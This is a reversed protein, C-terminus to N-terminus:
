LAQESPLDNEWVLEERKFTPVATPGEVVYVTLRICRGQFHKTRPERNGTDASLKRFERPVFVPNNDLENNDIAPWVPKIAAVVRDSYAQGAKGWLMKNYPIDIFKMFELIRSDTRTQLLYETGVGSSHARRNWSFLRHWLWIWAELQKNEDESLMMLRCLEASAPMERHQFQQDLQRLEGSKRRRAPLMDDVTRWEGVTHFYDEDTQVGTIAGALVESLRDVRVRDQPVRVVATRTATNKSVTLAGTPMAQLAVRVVEGFRNQTRLVTRLPEVSTPKQPQPEPASPEPVPVMAWDLLRIIAKLAATNAETQDINYSVTTKGDAGGVVATAKLAFRRSASRETPHWFFEPNKFSRTWLTVITVRRGTETLAKVVSWDVGDLKADQPATIYIVDRKMRGREPDFRAPKLVGPQDGPCGEKGPVVKGAGKPKGILLPRETAIDDSDETDSWDDSSEAADVAEGLQPKKKQAKQPPKKKKKEALEAPTIMKLRCSRKTAPDTNEEWFHAPTAEIWTGDARAVRDFPGLAPELQLGAAPILGYPPRTPSDVSYIANNQSREFSFGPPLAGLLADILPQIPTANQPQYVKTLRQHEVLFDVAIRDGPLRMDIHAHNGWDAEACEESCYAQPCVESCQFQAPKLCGCRM